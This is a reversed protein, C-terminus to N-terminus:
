KKLDSILYEIRARIKTKDLSDLDQLVDELFKVAFDGNVRSKSLAAEINKMREDLDSIGSYIGRVFNEARNFDHRGAEPGGGAEVPVGASGEAQPLAKTESGPFAEQGNERAQDADERATERFEPQFSHSADITRGPEEGSQGPDEVAMDAHVPSAEEDEESANKLELYRRISYILSVLAVVFVAAWLYFNPDIWFSYTNLKAPMM